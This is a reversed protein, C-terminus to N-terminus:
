RRVTDQDAYNVVGEPNPDQRVVAPVLDPVFSCHELATLYRVLQDLNWQLFQLSPIFLMINLTAFDASISQVVIFTKPSRHRTIYLEISCVGRLILDCWRIVEVM